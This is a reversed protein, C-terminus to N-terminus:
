SVSSLTIFLVIRLALFFLILTLPISLPPADPLLRRLPRYFPETLLHFLQHIVTRRGRTLWDLVARGIVLWMAIALVWNLATVIEQVM